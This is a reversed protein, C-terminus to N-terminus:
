AISWFSKERPLPFLETNGTGQFFYEPRNGSYVNFLQINNLPWPHKYKGM